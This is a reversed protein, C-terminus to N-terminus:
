THTHIHAHTCIRAHMYLIAYFQLLTLIIHIQNYLQMREVYYTYLINYVTCFNLETHIKRSGREAGGGGVLWDVPDVDDVLGRRVADESGRGVMSSSGRLVVGVSGRRFVDPSGGELGESTSESGRGVVDLSGRLVVGVTLLSCCSTTWSMARSQNETPSCNSM